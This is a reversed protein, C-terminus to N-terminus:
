LDYKESAKNRCYNRSNRISSGSKYKEFFCKCTFHSIEKFNRNNRINNKSKLSAMCFRNLINNNKKVKGASVELCCGLDLIIFIILISYSSKLLM